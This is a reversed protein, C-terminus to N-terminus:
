ATEEYPTPQGYKIALDNIAEGLVSKLNRGTDAEIYGLIQRVRKPYNAGILVLGSEQQQRRGNIAVIAAERTNKFAAKLATNKKKTTM